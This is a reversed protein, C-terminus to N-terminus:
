RDRSIAYRAIEALLDRAPGPEFGDLGALADALHAEAAARSRAIVGEDAGIAAVLREIDAAAAQGRAWPDEDPRTELYLLTPLTMQGSRLDSGVPKGLTAEDATFDLLDDIIQFAMGLSRGFRSLDRVQEPTAGILVAASEQWIWQRAAREVVERTRDHLRRRRRAELAGTSGLHGRHRELADVLAETGEGKATGRAKVLGAGSEGMVVVRSMAEQMEGMKAQMEQATKMMKAMDGLGGLGKLM